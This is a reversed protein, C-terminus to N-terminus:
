RGAAELELAALRGELDDLAIQKGLDLVAIAARIRVSPSPDALTAVLSQAAATSAAQLARQAEDLADRSRQRLEFVVAPDRSWRWGTRESVGAQAAAEPVSSGALVFGVFRSQRASLAM